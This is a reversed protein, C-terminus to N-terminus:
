QITLDYPFILLPDSKGYRFLTKLQETQENPLFFSQNFLASAKTQASSMFLEYLEKPKPYSEVSYTSVEAKEAAIKVADELGGLIDVLNQDLADQGTWVRGQAVADVEEVTMDRSEAVKSIFTQYFRDTFQQYAKRETETFGRTPNLWDAYQHSKVQDFTIGLEENWLQKTNFKTSFVGISGTITTSEAVISDAAMAIYYGGSAAVPGMSAIVPMEKSLDRLKSWILDSTSGSGGPSNIRVVAAKVDDDDRIEELQEEFFSATIIQQNDFPSDGNTGYLIPGNAYIVAIKDSTSNSELGATGPTVRYYRSNSITNLSRDESVGMRKNILQELDNPSLLSDVLGNKYANQILLNPANNMIGNLEDASKGTKESVAQVFHTSVDSIIQELQYRSEESLEKQYYPEVASKYKGHRAIEAEVGIKEFLGTYFSVQTYFGDFEFFSEAPAFVSDAATALYYGKENYGMESTSAYVFKDTSDRFTKIMRHAEELNAWGGSVFDLELWVGKINDHKAAKDLNERMSELSVKPGGGTSLLEDFPNSAQQASLAGQLNIKLVTNDRVYPEPQQTSSSITIFFIIFLIFVAILFGLTSAILTQFFKM